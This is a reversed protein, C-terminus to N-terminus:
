LFPRNAQRDIGESKPAVPENTIVYSQAREDRTLTQELNWALNDADDDECWVLLEIRRM